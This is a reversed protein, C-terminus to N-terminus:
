KTEETKVAAEATSAAVKKPNRNRRRYYDGYRYYYYYETATAVARNFILGLVNVNRQHLLDLAERAMRASTFSGRVVFLVGDVKPALSTTDDTALVPASDLLIYDYLPQVERLFVDASPSLFLEGPNVDAVGSPIFFLNQVKTPMVAQSYNIEQNLIESLGPKGNMGMLHHLTSRRLDADILLVKAGSLALTAALNATVTSKGEDPVSSTVVITKPRKKDSFMFMLSSRMNRFAEVFVHREDKSHVLALKGRSEKLPIDPVQGLVLETLHNRLENISAFRDDFIEILYLVGFGLLFGAALGLLLYQTTTSVRTSPMARALVKFDDQELNKNVGVSQIVNMLRDYFGQTRQLEQRLRDYEAMRRSAELAKADWEKFAQELNQIQLQLTQRRNQLQTNSQQKFLVLLKDQNAIEENLKQMKPHTPRLFRGLEERRSKLLQIQQAAKYHDSQAGSLASVVEPSFSATTNTRDMGASVPRSMLDPIQEPEIMLLLQYETRLAALQKNINALYGGASAGQEQLFVLNNTSLFAHLRDQNERLDNEMKNVQDTVSALTSDSSQSRVEKKFSLYEDMVLNLFAPVSSPEPGVARLDFIATQKMQKVSLYIDNLPADPFENKLKAIARERITPSQLLEIQTGIYNAAEETYTKGELVNLRTTMWMRSNSAYQPPAKVTLIAVPIMVVCICLPLVWWHKKLLVQYRHLRAFMRSTETFRVATGANAPKNGPMEPASPSANTEM